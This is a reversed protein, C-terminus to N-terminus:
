LNIKNILTFHNLSNFLRKVSYANKRQCVARVQDITLISVSKRVVSNVTELGINAEILFSNM